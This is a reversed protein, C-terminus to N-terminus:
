RGADFSVMMDPVFIRSADFTPRPRVQIESAVYVSRRRRLPKRAEVKELHSLVAELMSPLFIQELNQM